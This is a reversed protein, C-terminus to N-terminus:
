DLSAPELEDIAKAWGNLAATAVVSMDYHREDVVERVKSLVKWLGPDARVWFVERTGWSFVMYNSDLTEGFENFLKNLVTSLDDITRIEAKSADLAKQLDPPLGARTERYIKQFADEGTFGMMVKLVDGDYRKRLRDYLQSFKVPNLQGHIINLKVLNTDRRDQSFQVPDLVWGGVTEMDLVGAADARHHGGVIEFWDPDRDPEAAPEADEPAFDVGDWGPVLTCPSVWGETSLSDCLANFEEDTMENPNAANKRLKALPVMAGYPYKSVAEAV